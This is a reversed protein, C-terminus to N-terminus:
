AKTAIIDRVESAFSQTHVPKSIYGDFGQELFKERDGQRAFATLAIVVVSKGNPMSRIVDLIDDGSIDPLMIDTIVLPPNNEVIWEAAPQGEAFDAVQAGEKKLLIVLLKRISDNDEIICVNKLYTEM